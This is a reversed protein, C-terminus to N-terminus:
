TTHSQCSHLDAKVPGADIKFNWACTFSNILQQTSELLRVWMSPPPPYAAGSSDVHGKQILEDTLRTLLGSIESPKMNGLEFVASDAPLGKSLKSEDPYSATIVLHPGASPKLKWAKCFRVSREVDTSRGVFARLQPDLDKIFWVALNDDGITRGFAEFNWYLNLLGGGKDQALWEPNCVLFLSYTKYRGQPIKGTPELPALAQPRLFPAGSLTFLSFAIMGFVLLKRM